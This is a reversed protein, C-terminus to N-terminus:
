AELSRPTASWERRERWADRYGSTPLEGLLEEVSGLRYVEALAILTSLRPDPFQARELDVITNRALGAAKAAEAQTLGAAKRRERLVAGFHVNSQDRTRGRRHLAAVANRGSM